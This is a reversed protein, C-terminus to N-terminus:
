RVATLRDPSLVLRGASATLQYVANPSQGEAAQLYVPALVAELLCISARISSAQEAPLLGIAEPTIRRISLGYERGLAIAKQALIQLQAENSLPEFGIIGTFRGAIEQLVGHRVLAKRGLENEDFLRQALEEPAAATATHPRAPPVGHAEASFGLAAAPAALDLNTTFLFVCKRFDLERMGDGDARNVSCRGEDLVSMFVKWVDPHAKDLEDFMFVTRPNKRVAALVPEDEYGVYGPPAGTLRYVSHPQAFTNLETWVFQWGGGTQAELIAPVAKALESKGVGTPGHLVLSLPRAPAVKGLAIYLYYAAAEVARTQGFIHGSLAERVATFSAPWPSRSFLPPQRLASSVERRLSHLHATLLEYSAFSWLSQRFLISLTKSTGRYTVQPRWYLVYSGDTRRFFGLCVAAPVCGEPMRCPSLEYSQGKAGAADIRPRLAACFRPDHCLQSFSFDM